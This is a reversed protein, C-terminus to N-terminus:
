DITVPVLQNFYYKFTECLSSGVWYRKIETKGLYNGVPSINLYTGLPWLVSYQHCIQFLQSFNDSLSM